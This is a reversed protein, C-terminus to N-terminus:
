LISTFGLMSNELAERLEPLRGHFFHGAGSINILKTQVILKESWNPLIDSAAVEDNDAYVIIRNVSHEVVEASNFEPYELNSVPPAILTILDPKINIAAQSVISTGFSFGALWIKHDPLVSKVWTYVSNLDEIEGLKNGYKGDSLGVGRYNFKVTAVGVNQMARAITFIVKNNMNSNEHLPHQHCIIGVIKDKTNLKASETELELNGEFGDVFFRSKKDSFVEPNFEYESM